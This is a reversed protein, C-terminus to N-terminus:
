HTAPANTSVRAAHREQEEHQEKELQVFRQNAADARARDGLARYAQAFLSQVWPENPAAKEAAQLDPLADAAKGLRLLLRAREAHAQALSPCQELATNIEQLSTTPSEGLEDLSNALKWHASCNGPQKSLLARYADRANAWDGTHWYLDALHELPGPVNPDAAIAQKYADVAGPTNQMSEMLEGALLHALPAAPDITQVQLFADQSLQLHLKGLVYWAEQDKPNQTLVFELQPIAEQLRNLGILVQALTVHAFRDDPLAKAGIELPPLAESFQGLKFFSAGLMVQAPYMDPALVLGQRLTTIAEPFRGLNYFLRGLNNYAAALDPALKLIKQYDAVAMEEHHAAQAKQAQRYLTQVEPTVEQAPLFGAAAAVSLVTVGFGFKIRKIMVM